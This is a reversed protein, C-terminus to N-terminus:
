AAEVYQPSSVKSRDLNVFWADCPLSFNVDRTNPFIVDVIPGLRKWDNDCDADNAQTSREAVTNKQEESRGDESARLTPIAATDASMLYDPPSSADHRSKPTVDKSSSASGMAASGEPAEAFGNAPMFTTPQVEQNLM